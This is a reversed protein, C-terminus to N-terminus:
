AKNQKDLVKKNKEFKKKRILKLSFNFGNM